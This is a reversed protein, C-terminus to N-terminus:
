LSSTIKEKTRRWRVPNKKNGGLVVEGGLDEERTKKMQNAQFPGRTEMTLSSGKSEGATPM